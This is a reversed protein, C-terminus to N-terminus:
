AQDAHGEGARVADSPAAPIAMWHTPAEGGELRDMIGPLATGFWDKQFLTEEDIEDCEAESAWRDFSTHMILLVGCDKRWGLLETEKPATEITQWGTVEARPEPQGPHAALHARLREILRVETDYAAKEDADCWTGDIATNSEKLEDARLSLSRAADMITARVAATLGERADAQAPPQPAAYLPVIKGDGHADSLRQAAGKDRVIPAFDNSASCVYAVPEAAREDAPAAAADASPPQPVAELMARWTPGISLQRHQNGRRIMLATPEIPVLKWGEPVAGAVETRPARSVCDPCDKVCEIPGNEFEVGGLGTIEGDDVVRTGGCTKCQEEAGAANPSSARANALAADIKKRIHAALDDPSLSGQQVRHSLAAADAWLEHIPIFREFSPAREDAAPPAPQAIARRGMPLAADSIPKGLAWLFMCFNAVDRPDGKEVHERLMMSLEVPDCTEWGGRGKARAAALKSKLEAAFRDVWADDSHAPAAEHQEVPAAIADAAIKRMNLADMNAPDTVPFEAITKLADARNKDTTTM